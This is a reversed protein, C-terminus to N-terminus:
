KRQNNFCCPQTVWLIRKASNSGVVHSQRFEGRCVFLIFLYFTIILLINLLGMRAEENDNWKGAVGVGRCFKRDHTKMM